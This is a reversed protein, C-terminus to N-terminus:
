NQHLFYQHVLAAIVWAVSSLGLVAGLHLRARFCFYAVTFFLIAPIIGWVAGLAYQNMIISNGKSDHWVWLMVILGTLPMVAILGALSPRSRAIFQAVSIIIVSILLKIAFNM